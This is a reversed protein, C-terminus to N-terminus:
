KNLINNVADILLEDNSLKKFMLLNPQRVKYIRFGSKLRIIRDRYNIDVIFGGRSLSM